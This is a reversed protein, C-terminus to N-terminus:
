TPIHTSPKLSLSYLFALCPVSPRCLPTCLLPLSLTSISSHLELTPIYTSSLHFPFVVCAASLPLLLRSFTISYHSLSAVYHSFTQCYFIFVVCPHSITTLLVFPFSVSLLILYGLIFAHLPPFYFSIYSASLFTIFAFQKCRPFYSYFRSLSFFSTSKYFFSVFLQYSLINVILAPPLCPIYIYHSVTLFIIFFPLSMISFILFIRSLLIPYLFCLVLHYSLLIRHLLFVFVVIFFDSFFSIFLAPVAAVSQYFHLLILRCTIFIFFLVCVFGQIVFLPADFCTELQTQGGQLSDSGRKHIEKKKKKKLM